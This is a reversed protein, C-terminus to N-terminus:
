KRLNIAGREQDKLKAYKQVTSLDSHGLVKSVLYINDSEELLNSAYTSRLKHPTIKEKTDTGFTYDTYKKLVAEVSRVALRTGRQSIFLASSDHEGLLIERSYDLYSLLADEVDSSFFVKQSKGGKRYVHISSDRFDVDEIDLGVLESIRIGTGLFLSILAEDRIRLRDNEAYCLRNESNSACHRGASVNNLLANQQATTMYIIDSERKAPTEVSLAVNVSLQNSSVLYTFLSRIAALKRAKSCSSNHLQKNEKTEYNEIFYLYGNIDMPQLKELDTVSIAAPNLLLFDEHSECLYKFFHEIDRLYALRTRPLFKGVSTKVYLFDRCFSPLNKLLGEIKEGIVQSQEYDYSYQGM